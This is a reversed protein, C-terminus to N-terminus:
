GLLRAIRGQMSAAISSAVEAASAVGASELDSGAREVAAPALRSIEEVRLMAWGEPLLLSRAEAAFHRADIDDSRRKGGIAFPLETSLSEYCATSVLDYLPAFRLTNWSADRMLAFNKLHADFNGIVFDFVVASWLQQLDDIPRASYGRILQMMRNLHGEGGSEYKQEPVIGLAQCFDEQHLRRPVALGDLMSCEEDFSRDFREICIVSTDLDLVEVAPTRLGLESAAKTCITENVVTSAFRAHAPKLIHTSPAGGVPKRWSGDAARYLGLKPQAGALSLRTQDDTWISVSQTESVARALEESDFRDYRAAPRESEGRVEVAGICEWALNALIKVYAGTSVRFARAYAARPNGEPLLGDFYPRTRRADFRGEGLPLSLSLPKPDPADLWQRSYTFGEGIGPLTDITGVLEKKGFREVLIDINM